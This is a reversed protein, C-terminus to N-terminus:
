HPSGVRRRLAKRCIASTQNMLKHWTFEAVDTALRIGGRFGLPYGRLVVCRNQEQTWQEKWPEMEGLFAISSLGRTAAHRITEQMLLNGPSCASFKDNYGIKMLWLRHGTEIAIQMAAARGNIHLFCLRLTGAECAAATYRRYFTGRLPDLALATGAKGKWGAAEVAFAKELLPQLTAPTPTVVESTVTGLEEAIRRARHLYARRKSNFKSEPEAWSPDLTIWPWPNGPRAILMGRRRYAKALANPLLSDAPVRRLSLPIRLGVIAEALVPLVDENAYLVDTPESFQSAGLMEAGAKGAPQVLPAIAVVDNGEEVVVIRLEGNQTFASACAQWWIFQQMPLHPPRELQVWAPRLKNLDEQNQIIRITM